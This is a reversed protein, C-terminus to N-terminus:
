RMNEKELMAKALIEDVRISTDRHGSGRTDSLVKSLIKLDGSYEDLKKEALRVTYDVAEMISIGLSSAIRELRNKTERSVRITTSKGAM